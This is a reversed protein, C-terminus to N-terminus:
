LKALLALQNTLFNGQSQLGSVTLELKTFQNILRRELAELRRGERAIKDDIRKISSTIGEERATLSGDISNIFGDILDPIRKGIGNQTLLFLDGVGKSDSELKSTLKSDDVKLTGDEEFRIGIDSLYLIGFGVGGARSIERRLQSMIGRVTSDGALAGQRNSSNLLFQQNVLKTVDNFAGVFANIDTKISGTDSSITITSSPDTSELTGNPVDDEVLLTFTVGSIVDSVINSSRTITLSNVSFKADVATQVLDGGGVFPNKANGGTLGTGDLTVANDAGTEKGQVVLRQDPSSSTGVNIISARVNAGSNNILDKLEALTNDDVGVTINTVTTDITITLTGEGVQATTSTFSTSQVTTSKALTDVIIDFSGPDATTDATGTIVTKDSSVVSRKNFDSSLSLSQAASKLRSLQGSLTTLIGSQAQFGAKRNNLIRINNGEINLLGSILANTDLGTILGGFQITAM